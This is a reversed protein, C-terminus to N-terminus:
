STTHKKREFVFHKEEACVVREAREQRMYFELLHFSLLFSKFCFLVCITSNYNLLSKLLIKTSSNVKHSQCDRKARYLAFTLIKVKKREKYNKSELTTWDIYVCACVEESKWIDVDLVQQTATNKSCDNNHSNSKCITCTFTDCVTCIVREDIINELAIFFSCASQSCYTRNFTRFEISKQKFAHILKFSLYLEVSM